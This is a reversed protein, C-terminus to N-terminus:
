VNSVKYLIHANRSYDYIPKCFMGRYTYKANALGICQLNCIGWPKITIVYNVEAKGRVTRDEMCTHSQLNSVVDPKIYIAGM